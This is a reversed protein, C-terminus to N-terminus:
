EVYQVQIDREAARGHDDIVRILHAGDSSPRWALAGAGIASKGILAGGDFWFVSRVGAATHTELAIVTEPRSRRLTYTVGLLPSAIRPSDGNNDAACAPLAPPMRRPMGAERFLKRMDSSWFEFVEMRTTEPSYPPCAPRGTAIDIAVGRHLTSVRIPSKGPIYWTDIRH